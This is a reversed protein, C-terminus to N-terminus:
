IHSYDPQSPLRTLLKKVRAWVLAQIEEPSLGGDLVAWREPEAEAQEQFGQRVKRHFALDLTEFRRGEVIGSAAAARELGVGPELDLLFTLDPNFDGTALRNLWDITELGLKRGYGQYAVTSAAFRDAIVVRGQALAPKIRSFMLDARAATFLLLEALPDIPRQAKLYDRLYEGLETGGPERVLLSPTGRRELIQHLLGAQTSKGAGNGGEFAIFCGSM